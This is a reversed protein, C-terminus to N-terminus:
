DYFTQEMELYSSFVGNKMLGTVSSSFYTWQYTVTTENSFLMTLAHMWIMHTHLGGLDLFLLVLEYSDKYVPRSWQLLLSQHQLKRPRQHWRSTRNLASRRYWPHMPMRGSESSTQTLSRTQCCRSSQRYTQRKQSHWSFLLSFNFVPM